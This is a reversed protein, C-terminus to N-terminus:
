KYEKKSRFKNKYGNYFVSRLNKHQSDMKKASDEYNSIEMKWSDRVIPIVQAFPTGQKIVGRFDKKIFMSLAGRSIFKDTDIIATLTVFPLDDRHLPHTYLVSTGSETSVAWHPNVRFIQKHYMNLDIDYHNYQPYSHEQFLEPLFEKIEDTTSYNLKEPNTADVYIDCPIKLIYGASIADFIPMCKKITPSAISFHNIEGYIGPQKKYWEPMVSSATVPEPVIDPTSKSIPHFTIKRM